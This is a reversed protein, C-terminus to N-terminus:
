NFNLWGMLEEGAEGRRLTIEKPVSEWQLRGWGAALSLIFTLCVPFRSSSYQTSSHQVTNGQFGGALARFEAGRFTAKSPYLTM